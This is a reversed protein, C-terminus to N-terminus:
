FEGDTEPMMENTEEIGTFSGIEYFRKSAVSAKLKLESSLEEYIEALDFVQDNGYGDFIVSQVLAIGYDIYNAEKAPSSKSYLAHEGDFVVNSGDFQNDNKYIMMTAFEPDSDVLLEYNDDLLTDGYTIFFTNGLLPMAKLIAGGTGLLKDGDSSYSVQLGFQSGDDVHDKIKEGLYGTCMVVKRLGKKYLLELQLDIFPRGNVELMAKPVSETLPRIRTALGGALVAIPIDSIHRRMNIM